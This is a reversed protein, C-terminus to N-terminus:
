RISAATKPLNRIHKLYATIRQDDALPYDFGFHRAVQQGTSRFLEGMGLLSHWAQEYGADSYTNLLLEWRAPDLYRQFYKGEKGPSVAFGTQIGILWTLMKMLPDRIYTDLAHKAYPLEGRWLGKAAYPCVWWFENCCDFFQRATPPQPLYSAESAPAFPPLLGDKDLLLVSLSDEELEGLRDVPLLSLDIRNGDMFQMLYVLRQGGSSPPDGMEEPM